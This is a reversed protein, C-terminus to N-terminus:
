LLDGKLYRDFLEAALQRPQLDLHYRQFYQCLRTLDRELLSQANPNRLPDVVQPFDIIAVTGEWYLVNYASLDAHICHNALMVAVDHLLLQYLHRAEAYGLTVTSLTPAPMGALGIFEMLIANGAQVIPRPVHVGAQYLRQLTQYEYEIWSNITLELGKRTKKRVARLGRQDQLPKGDDGLLSRGEKYLADNKLNRLMRPRYIKAALLDMGLNPHAQCCYVNAEKGSRVMSLVDSILHDEYFEKLAQSIWEHEHRSAKYTFEFGAEHQDLADALSARIRAQKRHSVVPEARAKRTPTELALDDPELELWWDPKNRNRSSM